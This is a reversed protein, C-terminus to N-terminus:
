KGAKVTASTVPNPTRSVPHGARFSLAHLRSEKALRITANAMLILPRTVHRKERPTAGTRCSFSRKPRFRLATMETLASTHGHDRDFFDICNGQSHGPRESRISPICSSSQCVGEASSM